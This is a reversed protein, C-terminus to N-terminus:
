IIEEPSPMKSKKGRMETKTLYSCTCGFKQLMTDGLIEWRWFFTEENLVRLLPKLIANRHVLKSTIWSVLADSSRVSWAHVVQECRTGAWSGQHGSLSLPTNERSCYLNQGWFFSFHIFRLYFLKQGVFRLTTKGARSIGDMVQSSVGQTTSSLLIPQHPVPFVIRDVVRKVMIFFKDPTGLFSGRPQHIVDVDWSPSTNQDLSSLVPLETNSVRM